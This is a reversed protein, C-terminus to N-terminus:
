IKGGYWEELEAETLPAFADDSIQIMGEYLGIPREQKRKKPVPVVTAIPINRECLTVPEGRKLLKAFHAIKAKFVSLNARVVSINYWLKALNNTL